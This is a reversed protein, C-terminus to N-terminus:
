VCLGQRWHGFGRSRTRRLCLLRTLQCPANCLPLLPLPPLPQAHSPKANLPSPTLIRSIQSPCPRSSSSARTIASLKFLNLRSCESFNTLQPLPPSPPPPPQHSTPMHTSGCTTHCMRKLVAVLYSVPACVRQTFRQVDVGAQSSKIQHTRPTSPPSIYLNRHAYKSM